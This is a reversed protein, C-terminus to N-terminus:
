GPFHSRFEARVAEPGCGDPLRRLRELLEDAKGYWYLDHRAESSGLSSWGETEDNVGISDIEAVDAPRVRLRALEGEIAEFLAPNM